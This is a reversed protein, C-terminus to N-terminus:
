QGIAWTGTEGTGLVRYTGGIRNGTRHGTWAIKVGNGTSEMTLEDADWAGVLEGDCCLAGGFHVTGSLVQGHVELSMAVQDEVGHSGNHVRGSWFGPALSGPSQAATEDGANPKAVEVLALRSVALEIDSSIAPSIPEVDNALRSLLDTVTAPTVALRARYRRIAVVTRPGIVGDAPGPDFGLLYLGRQIATFVRLGEAALASPSDAVSARGTDSGRAPVVGSLPAGLAARQPRSGTLGPDILSPGVVVNREASAPPTTRTGVAGTYPNVNGVTSWNNWFNGDPASRFHPQVYTGDKRYYGRVQVDRGRAEAQALVISAERPMWELRGALPSVLGLLVLVAVRILRLIMPLM